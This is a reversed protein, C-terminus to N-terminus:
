ILVFVFFVAAYVNFGLDFPGNYDIITSSHVEMQGGAIM